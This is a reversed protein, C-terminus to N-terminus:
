KILDLNASKQRINALTDEPSQELKLMNQIETTMIDVLRAHDVMHPLSVSNELIGYVTKWVLQDQRGELPRKLGLLKGWNDMLYHAFWDANFQELVFAKALEVNQATKPIMLSMCYSITGNTLADPIPMIELKDHGVVKGVEVVRAHDEWMIAALGSKMSNRPGSHDVLSSTSILGEEVGQRWFSLLDLAEQSSFDLNNNEDYITGRLAQVGSFYALIMYERSWNVDMGYRITKGSADKITLKKLYNYFDDLTRPPIINGNADTLGAEDAFDKRAILTMIEGDTPIAYVKGDITCDSLFGELWKEKAYEGKLVDEFDVLLGKAQFAVAEAPTAVIAIDAVYNNRSWALMLPAVEFDGTKSWEFTVDPYDKIFNEAAEDLPYKDFYWAEAIIKLEKGYSFSTITIGLLMIVVLVIMFRKFM